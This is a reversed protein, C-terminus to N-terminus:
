AEPGAIRDLDDLGMLIERPKSGNPPGLVGASHLQDIIRAARGYGIGLRRQLLSTSGLQHQICVEAARRFEPDRKGAPVEEGEDPEAELAERDKVVQLIDAKRKAFAIDETAEPTTVAPAPQALAPLVLAASSLLLAAFLLGAKRPTHTAPATLTTPTTM